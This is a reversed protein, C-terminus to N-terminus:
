RSKGLWLFITQVALPIGAFWDLNLRRWYGSKDKSHKLPLSRREPFIFETWAKAGEGL